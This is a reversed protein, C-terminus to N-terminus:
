IMQLELVFCAGKGIVSEVTISGGYHEVQGRVWWLGLGHGPAFQDQTSSVGGDFITDIRWAPIGEGTDKIKVIAKKVKPNTDITIFLDGGKENMAKRANDCLNWIVNVLRKNATVKISVPEPLHVRINQPFEIKALADRITQLLDTPGTERGKLVPRLEQIIKKADGLDRETREIFQRFEAYNTLMELYFSKEQLIEIRMAIAGLPNNLRHVIDGAQSGLETLTFRQLKRARNIAAAAQGAFTNLLHVHDPTFFDPIPSEMNLVGLVKDEFILPVVLQSKVDEHHPSRSDSVRTIDPMYFYKKKKVARGALSKLPVRANVSEGNADWRIYLKNGDLIMFQGFQGGVMTLAKSLILKATTDEDFSGSFDIVMNLLSERERMEEAAKIAVGLHRALYELLVQDDDSFADRNSSELNIVGIVRDGVAMPVALESLMKGETVPQYYKRINPQELDLSNIKISRNEKVVIGSISHDLSIHSGKLVAHQPDCAAVLLQRGEVLLIWAAEYKFMQLFKELAFEVLETKKGHRDIIWEDVERILMILHVLEKQTSTLRDNLRSLLQAKEIALAAQNAFSLVIEGHERTYFNKERKFLGIQGIIEGRLVLPIGIWGHVWNVTPVPIWRGLEIEPIVDDIIVPKIKNGMESFVIDNTVDLSFKKVKEPYEFKRVAKSVLRDNERLMLIAGDYEIVRELQELILNLSTELDIPKILIASADRLTDALESAKQASTYLRTNHLIIAASNAFADMLDNEDDSFSHLNKYNIYLVGVREDGVKLPIGALSRIGFFKEFPGTKFVRLKGQAKQLDTILIPNNQNLIRLTGGDDRPYKWEYSYAGEGAAALQSMLFKRATEDYSFVVSLDASIVQNAAKVIKDLAEKPGRDRTLVSLSQTIDILSRLRTYLRVNRIAIAAQVAFLKATQIEDNSFQHPKPYNIFLVGVKEDGVNLRIGLSAQVETIDRFAGLSTTLFPYDKADKQYDQLKLLGDEKNLVTRAIGPPNQRPMTWAFGELKPNLRSEGRAIFQKILFKDSRQNYPQVACFNGNLVKYAEDAIVKLVDDVQTSPAVGLIPEQLALLRDLATHISFDNTIQAM